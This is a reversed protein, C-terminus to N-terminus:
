GRLVSVYEPVSGDAISARIRAGFREAEASEMRVYRETLMPRGVYRPAQLLWRRRAGADEGLAEAALLDVKVLSQSKGQPVTWRVEVPHQPAVEEVVRGGLAALPSCSILEARLGRDVAEALTSVPDADLVVSVPKTKRIENKLIRLAEDLSTVMFDCVGARVAERARRPDDEFALTAAGAINAATALAMGAPDLEAIVMLSGGLGTTGKGGPM